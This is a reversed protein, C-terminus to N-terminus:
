LVGRHVGHRGTGIQSDEAEKSVVREVLTKVNDDSLKHGDRKKKILDQFSPRADGLGPM